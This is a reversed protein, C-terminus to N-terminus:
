RLVERDPGAASLGQQYRRVLDAAEDVDTPATYLIEHARVYVDSLEPDELLRLYRAKVQYAGLRRRLEDRRAIPERNAAAVRRAEDRAQTARARWRELAESAEQWAGADALAVTRDLEGGLDPASAPAPGDTGAIKALAAEHAERADEHASHAQALLARAEAMRRGADARFDRLREVRARVAAVRAELESVPEPTAALPNMAVADTLRALESRADELDDDPAAGLEGLLESCARLTASATTLRPVLTDWRQAVAGMLDRGADVGAAGRALLEDPSCRAGPEGPTPLTRGDLLEELEALRDENLRSKTGRLERIRELRDDLLARGEWANALAASASTWASATAGTLASKELLERTPDLELELLADAQEKASRSLSEIRRDVEVTTM